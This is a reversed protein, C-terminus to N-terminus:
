RRIKGENEDSPSRGESEGVRASARRKAPESRARPESAASTREPRALAIEEVRIRMWLILGFGVAAIPGSVLAHMALAVGVIEGEVGVYNPHRLWRYPGRATQVSGPPVLVRFTWRPGLTVIAWYKIAKAAVFVAIGAATMADWTVGRLAGEAFMAVFSGPYAFQMWPYVDDQPEVAGLARLGRDNRASLLTELIMVAFVIVAFVLTM